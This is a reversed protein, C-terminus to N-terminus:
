LILIVIFAGGLVGLYRWLKVKKQEETSAEQYLDDIYDQALSLYRLQDESTSQGLNCGLNVLVERDDEKLATDVLVEQVAQQWAEKATLGTRLGAQAQSFFDALPAELEAAIKAFAQPLPNVEYSVETKLLQLALKVQKLQRTRLVFERAKLFGLSSSSGVILLVGILEM